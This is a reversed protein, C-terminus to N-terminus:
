QVRMWRVPVMPKYFKDLLHEWYTGHLYLSEPWRSAITAGLHCWVTPISITANWANNMMFFNYVHFADKTERQTLAHDGMTTQHCVRGDALPAPFLSSDARAKMTAHVRVVTPPPVYEALAELRAASVAKAHL